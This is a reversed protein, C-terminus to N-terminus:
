RVGRSRTTPSMAARARVSEALAAAVLAAAGLAGNYLAQPLVADVLVLGLPAPYHFLRLVSFRLLGEAVTLVVLGPVQVLPNSVWLRGAASGLGFGVMAKTAAQVGVLGGGSIDQLLGAIFGSVCGIEPGRRLALLVTVILPLDPATGWVSLWQAVSAQAVGGGLTALILAM